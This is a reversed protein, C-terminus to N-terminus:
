WGRANLAGASAYLAILDLLLAAGNLIVSLQHLRDFEAKRAPDPNQEESVTRIADVQPRVVAGAYVTCALAIAIAILAATWWLRVGPTALLLYIALVLAVAGGAYGVIYYRPFVVALLKGADPRALTGFVTPAVVFSFFVIAGICCGLALLYLFLLVTM